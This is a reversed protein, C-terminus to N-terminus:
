ATRATYSSPLLDWNVTHAAIGTVEVLLNTGSITMAVSYDGQNSSMHPAGILTVTGAQNNYGADYMFTHERQQDNRAAAVRVSVYHTGTGSLDFTHLTTVTADTTQVRNAVFAVTPDDGTATSVLTLVATGITPQTITAAENAVLPGKVTVTKTSQGVNVAVAAGATFLEGTGEAGAGTPAGAKLSIGAGDTNAGVAPQGELILIVGHSAAPVPKLTQTDPTVGAGVSSTGMMLKGDKILKGTTSNYMPLSDATAGAPGVVDGTGAGLAALTDVATGRKAVSDDADVFLFTDAGSPTGTSLESLDVNITAALGPGGDAIDIATGATLVREDTLTADASLVVYQAAIPASLATIDSVLAKKTTSDTTDSIVVHDNAAITVTGLETVDLDITPDGAVGAPNTVDLGTGVAVNRLVWTNDATRTAHGTGTLAAIATLDADVPQLDSCHCGDVTDANLGKHWVGARYLLQLTLMVNDMWTERSVQPGTAPIMDDPAGAANLSDGWVFPGTNLDTSNAM